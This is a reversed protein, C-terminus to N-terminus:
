ALHLLTLVAARGGEGLGGLERPGLAVRGGKGWTLSCIALGEKPSLFCGALGLAPHCLAWVLWCWCGPQSSKEQFGHPGTSAEQWAWPLQFVAQEQGHGFPRSLARGWGSSVAMVQAAQVPGWEGGM